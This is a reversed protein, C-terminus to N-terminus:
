DFRLTAKVGRYDFAEAFRDVPVRLGVFAELADAWRARAADLGNVAARWDREHANVSGILARNQLIADVGLVRGDLTIERARGDVGLLCAVGNRRLLALADLMVQADGAAEIVLDFGDTEGALEALRRGGTSLYRAGVADCLDAKPNPAPTRSAAWVEFRELRLFVTSLM